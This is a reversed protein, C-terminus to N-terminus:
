LFSFVQLHAKARCTDETQLALAFSFSGNKELPIYSINYIISIV